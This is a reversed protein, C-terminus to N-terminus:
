VNNQRTGKMSENVCLKEDLIACPLFRKNLMTLPPRTKAFKDNRTFKTNDSFHAFAKLIEIRNRSMTNLVSALYSESHYWRIVRRRSFPMYGTLM